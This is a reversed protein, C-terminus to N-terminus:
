FVYKLSFQMIRPDLATRIQGFTNSTITVNPNGPRFKNLVNFAEARLEFSQRERLKFIRSLAVDFSWTNPAQIANRGLNGLPGGLDPLAFAAPNLYNALPGSGNGYPSALIQSGRQIPAGTDNTQTGNLARDSGALITLWNGTSYRYIGSLRWGSAVLRLKPNAFQPTEAVSTVNFVQRRDSDCNSRDLRRSNPDAYTNSAWMAMPNYLTAYDGICHSLTYNATITVGKAARREVSLLMGHYNQTAGDDAEGIYGMKAGDAPRELSFRRRADTNSTSSCPTYSVGNLVCSAQPFYIAPNLAKNSWLHTMNSGRYSATVLWNTGISRQLSLNWTQSYPTKTDVRQTYYQGYPAFPTNPGLVYPFINGGPVGQWPDALGGVPSSLNVRNGWPPAGSYTERFDGPVYIYSLGYSARVSTRGDGSVDWALGLRPAFHMWESNIGNKPFGADGPFYFGAPANLYVTSHIGQLFRDHSFNYIQGTPAVQPIFPEWRLGYNLTLKPTTKWSDAAYLAFTTGNVHHGSTTGTLMSTVRGLMFDGLGNGTVGGGFSFQTPSVFTSVSNDRGHMVSVGYSMQHTGRVISVDDNLSYTMGIYRHPELFSSTLSFGGTINLGYIRTIEPACYIKVGADCWNFLKTTGQEGTNLFHTASRNVALRFSQVVNANVLYTSGFAYATQRSTTWGTQQLVNTNFSDPNRGHTSYITARGFMSHKASQQYDFKGITYGENQASLNGYTVRGCSDETKPFPKGTKWNVIFLAPASFLTPDVRNNVFPARLTLQRGANCAPSAFTTWDGALMATTPVFAEINAPDSRTITGQFGGFFFLKNKMIPGGLTGGFQNRKLTSNKTAFYNRANSLDNRVFEFLDGHLENTGSKTVSAVAAPTGRQANVGTTEVKFEQMADPFPLLISSGSIFTMVNAGDLTFDVGFSAGGAVALLPSGAVFNVGTTNQQVAGGALTILDTVVRGNLPLQLIQENEVLSGVTSTRTEVLTANAQVDVQESVQGVELTVNIVPSGNVQLVIGTQAYTRFGPLAAELRYPGLALNPLVYSGTENTVTTRAIGTDTQTATIEVGPLVAGSQDRATGSIQATAQAWAASCTFLSILASGIWYILARKM